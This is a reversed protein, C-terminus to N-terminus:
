AGDEKLIATATADETVLINLHKGRLAGLIADKKGL